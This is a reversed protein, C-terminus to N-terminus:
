VTVVEGFRLGPKLDWYWEDPSLFIRRAGLRSLQARLAAATKHFLGDDMLPIGDAVIDLLVPPFEQVEPITLPLVSVHTDVGHEYLWRLEAEVRDRAELATLGSVREGMSANTSLLILLDIDSDSRARGRAASGFLVVSHVPEGQRHLEAMYCGLLRGYRGQPVTHLNKLRGSVLLQFVDPDCLRYRRRRERVEHVYLFGSKRLRSVAVKASAASKLLHAVDAFTFVDAGHRLFLQAFTEGLWRQPWM